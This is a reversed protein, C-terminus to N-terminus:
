SVPVNLQKSQRIVGIMVKQVGRSSRLWQLRGHLNSATIPPASQPHGDPSSPGHQTRPSLLCLCLCSFSRCRLRRPSFLSASSLRSSAQYTCAVQCMWKKLAHPCGVHPRAASAGAGLYRSLFILAALLSARLSSLTDLPSQYSRLGDWGLAMSDLRPNYVLGKSDQTSYIGLTTTTCPSCM